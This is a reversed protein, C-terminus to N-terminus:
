YLDGPVVGLANSRLELEANEASPLTPRVVVTGRGYVGSNRFVDMQRARRGTRGASMEVRREFNPVPVGLKQSLVVFYLGDDIRGRVAPQYILLIHRDHPECDEMAM